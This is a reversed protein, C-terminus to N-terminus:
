RRFLSAVSEPLEPPADALLPDLPASSLTHWYLVTSSRARDLACAFAKATYTPDLEIGARAAERTASEGAPTPYGYGRGLWRKDIEIRAAARVSPGRALGLLAATKRAVRRAMVGLVAAPQSIAVGVVNTRMGLMEFGVALGAVTGGSGTAVVVVDPEPMVGASIQAALEKSAEVFGLSGLANSGGLPIFYTEHSARALQAAVVAPATPWSSAVIAHLGQALAARLNTRAHSTSPQPVLVADVTFGERRGYVATAVVQHSGAAGLTLIRTKGADRAAGFLHELKRVKNGGYLEAARDDRKIWLNGEAVRQIPTPYTGLAQPTPLSTAIVDGRTMTEKEYTPRTHPRVLFITGEGRPFM